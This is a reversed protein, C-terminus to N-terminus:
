TPDTDYWLTGSIILLRPASACVCLWLCVCVDHVFAVMDISALYKGAVLMLRTQFGAVYM